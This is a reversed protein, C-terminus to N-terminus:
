FVIVLVHSAPVPHQGYGALVGFKLENINDFM